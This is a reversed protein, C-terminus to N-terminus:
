GLAGELQLLKAELGASVHFRSLHDDNIESEACGAPYGAADVKAAPALWIVGVSFAALSRPLAGFTSVSCM